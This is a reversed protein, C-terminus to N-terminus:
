ARMASIGTLPIKLRTPVISNSIRAIKRIGLNCGLGIIGAIITKFDPRGGHGKTKWHEFCNIFSTAKNVTSLIEFLSFYREHPFLDM